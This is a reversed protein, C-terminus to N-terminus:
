HEFRASLWLRWTWQTKCWENNIAKVHCCALGSSETNKVSQIKSQLVFSATSFPDASSPADASENLNLESSSHHKLHSQGVVIPLKWWILISETKWWLFIRLFSSHFASSMQVGKKATQLKVISGEDKVTGKSLVSSFQSMRIIDYTSILIYLMKYPPKTKWM